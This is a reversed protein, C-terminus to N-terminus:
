ISINRNIHVHIILAYSLVMCVHYICAYIMCVCLSLYISMEAHIVHARVCARARVCVCVCVCVCARVCVYMCVYMCVYVCVCYKRMVLLWQLNRLLLDCVRRTAPNARLCPLGLFFRAILAIEFTAPAVHLLASWVFLGSETKVSSDGQCAAFLVGSNSNGRSFHSSAHSRCATWFRYLNSNRHWHYAHQLAQAHSALSSLSHTPHPRRLQGHVWKRLAAPDEPTTVHMCIATRAHACKQQLV